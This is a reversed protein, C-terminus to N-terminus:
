RPPRLLLAGATRDEGPVQLPSLGHSMMGANWGGEGGIASEAWAPLEEPRRCEKEGDGQRKASDRNVRVHRGGECGRGSDGATRAPAAHGPWPVSLYTHREWGWPRSRGARGTEGTPIAHGAQLKMFVLYPLPLTPMGVIRNEQAAGLAEVAWPGSLAILDLDHGAPDQWSTRRVASVSGVMRWGADRLASEARPLTAALVIVDIDRTAREPAYANTAVAGAVAHPVDHLADEVDSWWDVFVKRVDLESLTSGTGPRQRRAVIALFRQRRERRREM